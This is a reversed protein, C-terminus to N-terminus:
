KNMIKDSLKLIEAMEDAAVFGRVLFHHFISGASGIRLDFLKELFRGLRGHLVFLLEHLKEM